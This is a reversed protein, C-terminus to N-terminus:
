IGNQQSLIMCKSIKKLNISYWEVSFKNIQQFIENLAEQKLKMWNLFMIFHQHAYNGKIGLLTINEDCAKIVNKIRNRWIRNFFM